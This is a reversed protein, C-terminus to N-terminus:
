RAEGPEPSEPDLADRNTAEGTDDQRLQGEATAYIGSDPGPSEFFFIEVVTDPDFLVQSQYTAVKRDTLREVREILVETMRNQFRQRFDRVADQEGFELMTKEAVTMGGRMVILLLDDMMYSKANVPGRGFYEKHTRVMENSIRALLGLNRDRDGGTVEPSGTQDM